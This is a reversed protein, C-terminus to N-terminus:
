VGHRNKFFNYVQSIETSSLARNYIAVAAINLDSFFSNGGRCAIYFYDNVFNNTNNNAYGPAPNSLATIQSGQLYFTNEISSQARDVVLTAQKWNLDNYNSKDWIGINYGANGRNSWFVQYSQALSTDNYTHVFGGTSSNFNATHEFVFDVNGSSPYSNPKFLVVITAANTGSLNLTNASRIWDDVGDLVFFGGGANFYPSNYLTFNNGNGSLDTWTTGTGPYSNKDAADLYVLLGNTIINSGLFKDKTAEYNQQVEGATLARNYVMLNPYETPGTGYTSRGLQIVNANSYGASGGTGLTRSIGNSYIAFNGLSLGNGNYTLTVHLWTDRFYGNPWVNSAFFNFVQNNPSGLSNRLGYVYLANAAPYPLTGFILNSNTASSLLCWDNDNPSDVKIWGMVTFATTGWDIDGFPSQFSIRDDVGDFTWNGGNEQSFGVGNLLSGTLSGTLNYAVTGSKPYSVLNSADAMLVLGDTVINSQFYNQKIEAELLERKYYECKAINGQYFNGGDGGFARAGGIYLNSTDPTGTIGGATQTSVLEGNRYLKLISGDWTSILYYWIGKSNGAVTAYITSDADRLQMGFTDGANKFLGYQGAYSGAISYINSRFGNDWTAAPDIYFWVGMSFPQSYDTIGAGVVTALDDVGDFTLWGNSDWTPGNVLTSTNGYGSLDYWSTGTQPYSTPQGADTYFTLGDANTRAIPNDSNNIFFNNTTAWNYANALTTLNGPSGPLTNVAYVINAETNNFSPYFLPKDAPGRGITTTNGIFIVNNASPAESMWSLGGFGGRYNRGQGDVV